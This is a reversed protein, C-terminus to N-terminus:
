GVPLHGNDAGVLESEIGALLEDGFERRLVLSLACSGHALLGDHFGKLSEARRGDIVSDRAVNIMAWGTAYGMPITPERSYWTAEGLAQTGSFGLRERMVATIKGHLEELNAEEDYVPLVFSVLRRAGEETM